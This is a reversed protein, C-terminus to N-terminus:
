DLWELIKEKLKDIRGDIRETEAELEDVRQELRRIKHDAAPPVYGEADVTLLDGVVDEGEDTLAFVRASNGSGDEDWDVVRILGWDSLINLHYDVSSVSPLHRKSVGDPHYDDISFLLDARPGILKQVVGKRTTPKEMRLSLNQLSM